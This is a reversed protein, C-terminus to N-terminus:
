KLNYAKILNRLTFIKLCQFFNNGIMGIVLSNAGGKGRLIKSHWGNEKKYIKIRM